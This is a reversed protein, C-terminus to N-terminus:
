HDYYDIHAGNEYQDMAILAVLKRASDRPLVLKQNKHMLVFADKMEGEPMEKRIRTQMDTDMPGPAYNLVRVNNRGSEKAITKFFM